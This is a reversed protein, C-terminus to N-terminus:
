IIITVDGQNYFHTMEIRGSKSRLWEDGSRKVEEVPAGTIESFIGAVVIAKSKTDDPDCFNIRIVAGGDIAQDIFQLLQQRDM